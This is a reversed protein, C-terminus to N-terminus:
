PQEKLKEIAAACQEALNNGFMDYKEGNSDFDVEECVRKADELAKVRAQAAASAYQIATYVAEQETWWRTNADEVRKTNFLTKGVTHDPSTGHAIWGVPEPLEVGQRLKAQYAALRGEAYEVMLERVKDYGFNHLRYGLREEIEDNFPLETM